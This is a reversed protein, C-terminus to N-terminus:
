KGVSATLKFKHKKGGHASTSPVDVSKFYKSKQLAQKIKDADAPNNVLGDMEVGEQTISLNTVQAETDLPFLASIERLIELSSIETASLASFREYARQYEKYKKEMAKAVSTANVTRENPFTEGYITALEAALNSHEQRKKIFSDTFDFLLVGAICVALATAITLQRKAKRRGGGYALEDRRLDVGVGDLGLGQIALGTAVGTACMADDDGSGAFPAYSCLLGAECGFERSFLEGMRSLMAGGGSLYIKSLGAGRLTTSAARLSRDVERILRTLIPGIVNHIRGEEESPREGAVAAAKERKLEEAARFDIALGKQLAETIDDGGVSISRTLVPSRGRMIVLLTKTAGIDLLMVTEDAIEGGARLLYNNTLAFADVGIVEPDLGAAKLIELQKAVLEKKAGIITVPTKNEETSASELFDVVVDEISFPIHPEAQFKIVQRIKHHGQFPVVTNRVIASSLPFSNVLRDTSVKRERLFKKLTEAVVEPEPREAKDRPIEMLLTKVIKATHGSKKVQVAKITSAGIDIGLPKHAGGGGIWTGGGITM